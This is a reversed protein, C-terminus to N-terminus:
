TDTPQPNTIEVAKVTVLYRGLVKQETDALRAEYTGDSMAVVRVHEDDITTHYGPLWEAIANSAFAQMDASMMDTDAKM